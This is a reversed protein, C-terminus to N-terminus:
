LGWDNIEAELDKLIYGDQLYETSGLFVMNVIFHQAFGRPTENEFTDYKLLLYWGEKPKNGATWQVYRINVEDETPDWGIPRRGPVMQVATTDCLSFLERLQDFIVETEVVGILEIYYNDLTADSPVQIVIDHIQTM